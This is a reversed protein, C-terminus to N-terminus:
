HAPNTPIIELLIYLGERFIQIRNYGVFLFLAYYINIHGTFLPFYLECCLERYSTTPFGFHADHNLRKNCIHALAGAIVFIGALESPNGFSWATVPWM